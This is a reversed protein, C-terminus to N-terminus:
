YAEDIKEKMEQYQEHTHDCGMQTKTKCRFEISILVCCLSLIKNNNDFAIAM